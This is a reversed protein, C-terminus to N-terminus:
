ELKTLTVRFRDPYVTLAMSLPSTTSLEWGVKTAERIAYIRVASKWQTYDSNNYVGKGGLRPREKPKAPFPVTFTILLAPDIQMLFGGGEADCGTGVRLLVVM